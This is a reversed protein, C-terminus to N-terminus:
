LNCTCCLAVLLCISSAYASLLTFFNKLCHAYISYYIINGGDKKPSGDYWGRLAQKGFRADDTVEFLCKGGKWPNGTWGEAGAEFDFLVAERPVASKVECSTALAILCLSAGILKKM